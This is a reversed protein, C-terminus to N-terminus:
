KQSHGTAISTVWGNHGELHGKLTLTVRQDVETM